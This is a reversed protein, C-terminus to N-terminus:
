ILALLKQLQAATISVGGLTLTGGDIDSIEFVNKRVINKEEFGTITGGSNTTPTVTGCGIEFLTNAKGVNARGIVTQCDNGTKTCLGGAHSYDNLAMSGAGEAHAAIAQNADNENGSYTLFGESHGYMSHAETSVGESHTGYSLSLTYSGEAHAATGVLNSKGAECLRGEAHSYQSYAKSQYGEAHSYNGNSRGEYGEAHSGKGPSHSWEGEAHSSQGLTQSGQGEAHSYLECAQTNYGEAHSAEKKAATSRGEAHAALAVAKSYLGEAHTAVHRAETKIGEAHAADGEYITAELGTLNTEKLTDIGATTRYGEGHTYASQAWTRVGEAHSAYGLANTYSGEAHSATGAITGDEKVQGAYTERGEAHSSKGIAHTSEGEAHSQQGNAHTKYGEAHSATATAVAGDGEAHSNGLKAITENGEAHSMRGLAQTGWGEAHACYGAQNERGEVHSFDGAALNDYGEVTSFSGSAKNNIGTAYAGYAFDIYGVTPNNPCTISYDDFLRNLIITERSTFPLKGVGIMGNDVDISKIQTCNVYKANNVISIYDNTKWQRLAKKAEQKSWSRSTQSTSLYITYNNDDVKTFSSWYFGKCGATSNIGMVMSGPALAKAGAGYALSLKGDAQPPEVSGTYGFSSIISSDNTGGAFSYENNAKGDGFELSTEKQGNKLNKISSGTAEIVLDDSQGSEKLISKGNITKFDTIQTYTDLNVDGDGLQAKAIEAAIEATVETKTALELNTIKKRGYNTTDIYMEGTDETILIQGDRKEVNNLNNSLGKKYIVNAM